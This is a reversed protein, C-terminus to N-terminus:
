KEPGLGPQLSGMREPAGMGLVPTLAPPCIWSRRARSALGAPPLTWYSRCGCPNQTSCIWGLGQGAADASAAWRGTLAPQTSGPHAGPPVAEAWLVGGTASRLWWGWGVPHSHPQLCCAAGSFSLVVDPPLATLTLGKDAPRIPAPPQLFDQPPLCQPHHRCLCRLFVELLLTKFGM